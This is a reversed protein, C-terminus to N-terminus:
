FLWVPYFSYSHLWPSSFKSCFNFSMLSLTVVGPLLGIFTNWSSLDKVSTMAPMLFSVLSVVIFMSNNGWFDRMLAYHFFKWQLSQDHRRFGNRERELATKMEPKLKNQGDSTLLTIRPCYLCHHTAHWWLLCHSHMERIGWTKLVATHTIRLIVKPSLYSFIVPNLCNFLVFIKGATDRYGENKESLSFYIQVRSNWKKHSRHWQYALEKILFHICRM